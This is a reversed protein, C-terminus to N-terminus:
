QESIKEKLEKKLLFNAISAYNTIMLYGIILSIIKLAWSVYDTLIESHFQSTFDNQNKMLLKFLFFVHTIFIPLYRVILSLGIAFIAIKLLDSFDVRRFSVKDDDFGKDLKLVNIFRDPNFILALFIATVVLLIAVFLLISLWPTGSFFVFITPLAQFVTIVIFYLGAIKLIIRFLDKKTM